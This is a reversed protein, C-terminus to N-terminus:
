YTLPLDFRPFDGIAREGVVTSRKIGLWDLLRGTLDATGARRKEDGVRRLRASAADEPPAARNLVDQPGGDLAARSPPLFSSISRPNRRPQRPLQRPRATPM